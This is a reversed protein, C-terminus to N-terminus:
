TSCTESDDGGDSLLAIFVVTGAIGFVTLAITKAKDLEKIALSEIESSDLEKYGESEVYGLLKSGEVKPEKLEYQTGDAMTVWVRSKKEIEPMEDPSIYRMNSCGALYGIFAMLVLFSLIKRYM